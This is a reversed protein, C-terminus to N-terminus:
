IYFKTKVAFTMNLIFITLAINASVKSLEWCEVRSMGSLQLKINERYKPEGKDTMM